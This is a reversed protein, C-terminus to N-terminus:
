EGSWFSRSLAVLDPTDGGRLHVRMSAGSGHEFEVVCEGSAVLSPPPLEVFAPSVSASDSNRSNVRRKVANYDLKLASVTRSLGHADALKVALAWLKDPIRAGVKRTRRWVEFRNQGRTLPGPIDSRKRGAM